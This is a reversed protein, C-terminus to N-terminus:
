RTYRVCRRSTPVSPSTSTAVGRTGLAETRDLERKVKEASLTTAKLRLEAENLNMVDPIIQIEAILDGRKVLDGAEVYLTKLIGAVRPKIEIEKRPQIAGAAVAKKVIEATMPKETELGIPKPRSKAYLFWLTGGFLGVILCAVAIPVVKRSRKHTTM